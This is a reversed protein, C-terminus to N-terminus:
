QDWSLSKFGAPCSMECARCYSIVLDRKGSERIEGYPAKNGQDENMQESCILRSYKGHPFAKRPCAKQCYMKCNQCPSFGELVGTTQFENELLIARLRLRPGWKPNVLLNNRGIIGIGSLVAADKLFLGGKEVHYPLPCSSIHYTWRLWYQLSKSIERLRRNGRTDGRDWYDLRPDGEPHHLGLVLVTQAWAPWNDNQIDNIPGDPDAQYSPSQLVDKLSVIGAQIGDYSEAYSIVETTPLTKKAM